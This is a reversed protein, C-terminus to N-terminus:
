GHPAANYFELADQHRFDRRDFVCMLGSTDLLM